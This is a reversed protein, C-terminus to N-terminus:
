QIGRAILEDALARFAKGRHSRENKQLIDLEAFTKGIKSDFFYPDYGFGAQGRPQGLILGEAEGRVVLPVETAGILVAACVYRGTREALDLDGLQAMLHDNNAQDLEEGHLGQDPAFRKSRVGPAGGLADIALGSDDAVTPMGSKSHFYQAKSRANEEFTEYPELEEEAPDRAIGASDLGILRLGPVAGLIRQIEMMKDLSRTAVLLEV